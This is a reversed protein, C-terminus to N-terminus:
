GPPPLVNRHILVQLWHCFSAETDCTATFGAHKVKVTSVFVPSLPEAAGYAFCVDAYHHSEGLLEAMSLRRLGHRDVLADWTAARKPLLQATSAPRDPGTDVGLTRAMAPWITRWDFVEGNTLNFTEGAAVPATASWLLADAALRTDVAEWV